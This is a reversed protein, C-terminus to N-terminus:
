AEKGGLPGLSSPYKYVLEGRIPSPMFERARRVQWECLCLLSDGSFKGPLTLCSSAPPLRTTHVSRHTHDLRWWCSRSCGQCLPCWKFLSDSSLLRATSLCCLSSQALLILISHPSNCGSPSSLSSWMPVQPDHKTM